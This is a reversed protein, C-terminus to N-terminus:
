PEKYKIVRVKMGKKRAKELIDKTGSSEGDWFAILADKNSCSDVMESNRIPGAKPGLKDWEAHYIEVTFGNSLAWDEGLRDAGKAGGSVVLIKDLKATLKDLTSFLLKKNDFTRTGCVVIRM